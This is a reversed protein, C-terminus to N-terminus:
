PRGAFGLRFARFYPHASFGFERLLDPLSERASEDDDNVVFTDVGRVM